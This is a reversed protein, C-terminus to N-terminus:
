VDISTLLFTPLVVVSFVYVTYVSNYFIIFIMSVHTVRLPFARSSARSSRKRKLLRLVDIIIIIEECTYAHRTCVIWEWSLTELYTYDKKKKEEEKEFPFRDVVLLLTETLLCWAKWAKWREDLCEIAYLNYLKIYLKKEERRKGERTCAAIYTHRHIHTYPISITLM